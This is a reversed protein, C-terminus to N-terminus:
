TKSIVCEKGTSDHSEGDFSIGVVMDLDKANFISVTNVDEEEM